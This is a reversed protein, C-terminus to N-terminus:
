YKSLSGRLHHYQRSQPENTDGSGIISRGKKAMTFHKRKCYNKHCVKFGTCLLFSIDEITSLISLNQQFIALANKTLGVQQNKKKPKSIKILGFGGSGIVGSISEFDDRYHQGGPNEAGSFYQKDLERLREKEFLEEFYNMDCFM